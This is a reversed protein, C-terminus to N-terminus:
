QLKEALDEANHRYKEMSKQFLETTSPPTYSIANAGAKITAAISEDTKGGTAIIPLDPYREKVKEVVKATDKGASINVCDIGADIYPELDQHQSVVTYIVPIDVTQRVGRVTEVDAPANLLVAISGLSESFLAIDKSRQGATVGGGVGAIVPAPSVVTIAQIIAPHPTYPYVALIADADTYTITSVDTSFLFSKLRRGNFIIGTSRRIVEPMEVITGRLKSTIVPIDKKPKSM